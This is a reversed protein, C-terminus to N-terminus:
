TKSGYEYGCECVWYHVDVGGPWAFYHLKLKKGCMPCKKVFFGKPKTLHSKIHAIRWARERLKKYEEYKKDREEEFIKIEEEKM